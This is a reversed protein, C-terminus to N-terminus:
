CWWPMGMKKGLRMTENYGMKITQRTDTRLPSTKQGRHRNPIKGQDKSHLHPASYLHRMSPGTMTRWHSGSSREEVFAFGAMRSELNM